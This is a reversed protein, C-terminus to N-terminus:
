LIACPGTPPPDASPIIDTTYGDRPAHLFGRIGLRRSAPGDDHHPLLAAVEDATPVNGVNQNPGQTLRLTLNGCILVRAADPDHQQRLLDWASRYLRVFPSVERMLADLRELILRDLSNNANSRVETAEQPDSIYLQAYRPRFAQQNPPVEVPGHMTYAQGQIVFAYYNHGRGHAQSETAM